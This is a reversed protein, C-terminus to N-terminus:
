GAPPPIVFDETFTLPGETTNADFDLSLQRTVGDFDVLFKTIELVGPTTLIVDRFISQVVNLDPAKRLIEEFYPVGLLRNLFWEGLFFQFRIRLHQAIADIGDVIILDGDSGIELDGTQENIKLDAM